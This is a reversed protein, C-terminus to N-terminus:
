PSSASRHMPLWIYSSYICLLEIAATRTCRKWRAGPKMYFKQTWNLQTQHFTYQLTGRRDIKIESVMSFGNKGLWFNLTKKKKIIKQNWLLYFRYKAFQRVKEFAIKCVINVIRACSEIVFIIARPSNDFFYELKLSSIYFLHNIEFSHWYFWAM